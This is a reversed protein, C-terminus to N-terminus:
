KKDNRRFYAHPTPYDERKNSIEKVKKSAKSKPAENTTPFKKDLEEKSRALAEKWSEGEKRSEKAYSMLNPREM